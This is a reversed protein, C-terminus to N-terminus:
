AAGIPLHDVTCGTRRLASQRDSCQRESRERTPAGSTLASGVYPAGHCAGGGEDQVTRRHRRLPLPLQDLGAQAGAGRVGPGRVESAPKVAGFAELDDGGTGVVIERAATASPAGNADWPPSASTSTGTVTSCRPRGWWRGGSAVAAVLGARRGAGVVLVPSIGCPSRARPPAPPSTRLSGGSSPRARGAAESRTARRTSSSWAGPASSTATGPRGPRRPRRRIPATAPRGPPSTSTAPTGPPHHGQVAVLSATPASSTAQTAAVYQLDGLPLVAAPQLTGVLDATAKMQCHVPDGLGGNFDKDTPSCAIDGAAVVTVAPGGPPPTIPPGPAPPACATTMAVAALVGTIGTAGLGEDHM